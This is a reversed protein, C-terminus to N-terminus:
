KWAFTRQLIKAYLKLTIVPNIRERILGTGFTQQDDYRDTYCTNQIIFRYIPHFIYTLFILIWSINVFHASINVPNQGKIVSPHNKNRFIGARM